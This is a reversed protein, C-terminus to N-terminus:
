PSYRCGGFGVLAQHGRPPHWPGASRGSGGTEGWRPIWLANRTIAGLRRQAELSDVDLGSAGIVSGRPM